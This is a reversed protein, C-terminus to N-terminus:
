ARSIRNVEQLGPANLLAEAVQTSEATPTEIRTEVTVVTASLGPQVGCLATVTLQEVDSTKLRRTAEDVLGGDGNRPVRVAVEARFRHLQATSM